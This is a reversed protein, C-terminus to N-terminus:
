NSLSSTINTVTIELNAYGVHGSIRLLKITVVIDIPQFHIHHSGYYSNTATLIIGNSTAEIKPKYEYLSKSFINRASENPGFKIPLLSAGNKQLYENTLVESLHSWSPFSRGLFKGELALYVFMEEGLTYTDPLDSPLDDLCQRRENILLSPTLVLIQAQNIHEAPFFTDALMAAKSKYGFIAAVLEHAHSSKLKVGYNNSITRLNNACLKVINSM